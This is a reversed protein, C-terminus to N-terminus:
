RGCRNGKSFILGGLHYKRVQKELEEEYAASQNSYAAVMFLQGIKEELTMRQLTADIWTSDPMGQKQARCVGGAFALMWVAVTFIATKM